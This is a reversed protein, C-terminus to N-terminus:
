GTFHLKTNRMLRGSATWKISISCKPMEQLSLGISDSQLFMNCNANGSVCALIACNFLVTHLITIVTTWCLLLAAQM